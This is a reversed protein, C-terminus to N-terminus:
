WNLDKIQYETNTDEKLGLKGKCAKSMDTNNFYLMNNIKDIFVVSGKDTVFLQMSDNDGINHYFISFCNGADKITQVSKLTFTADSDISNKLMQKLYSIDSNKHHKVINKMKIGQQKSRLTVIESVKGVFRRKNRTNQRNQKDPDSIDDQHEEEVYFVFRGNPSVVVKVDKYNRIGNIKLFISNEYKGNQRYFAFEVVDIDYRNLVYVVFEEGTSKCYYLFENTLYKSLNIPLLRFLPCQYSPIIIAKTPKFIPSKSRTKGCFFLVNQSILPFESSITSEEIGLNPVYKCNSSSEYSFMNSTNTLKVGLTKMFIMEDNVKYPDKGTFGEFTYYEEVMRLSTSERSMM